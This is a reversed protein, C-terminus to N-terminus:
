PSLHVIPREALAVIFFVRGTPFFDRGAGVRGVGGRSGEFGRARSGVERERRGTRIRHVGRPEDADRRRCYTTTPSHDTPQNATKQKAQCSLSAASRELFCGFTGSTWPVTPAVSAYTAIDTGAVLNQYKLTCIKAPYTFVALNPADRATLPRRQNPPQTTPKPNSQNNQIRNEKKWVTQDLAGGCECGTGDDCGGERPCYVYINCGSTASCASCCAEASPIDYLFAIVAGSYNTENFAICEATTTPQLPPPPLARSPALFLPSLAAAPPLHLAPPPAPFSVWRFM